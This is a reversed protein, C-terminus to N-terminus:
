RSMQGLCLLMGVIMIIINWWYWPTADVLSVYTYTVLMQLIMFLIGLPKTKKNSLVIFTISILIIPGFWGWLDTSLFLEDLWNIDQMM